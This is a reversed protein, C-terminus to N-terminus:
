ITAPELLLGAQLVLPQVVDFATLRGQAFLLQLPNTPREIKQLTIVSM